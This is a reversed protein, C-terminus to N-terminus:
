KIHVAGCTCFTCYICGANKWVCTRVFRVLARVHAHTYLAGFFTYRSYGGYGGCRIFEDYGGCGDDFLCLAM